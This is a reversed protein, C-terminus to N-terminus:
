LCELFGSPISFWLREKISYVGDSLLFSSGNACCLFVIKPVTEDGSIGALTCVIQLISTLTEDGRQHTQLYSCLVQVAFVLVPNTGDTEETLTVKAIFGNELEGVYEM